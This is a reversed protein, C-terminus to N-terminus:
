DRVVFVSQNAHRMVRAANPGILYDKLEPRHSTLVILDCGLKDAVSIIEEYITGHAVHPTPVPGEGQDAALVETLKKGAAAIALKEFDKPFHGGVISMGFAPVVTVAHLDAGYSKALQRAVPLARVWSSEHEVDIPVLIRRFM